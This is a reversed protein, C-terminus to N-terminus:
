MIQQYPPKVKIESSIAGDKALQLLLALASMCALLKLLTCQKIDPNEMRVCYTITLGPNSGNKTSKLKLLLLFIPIM